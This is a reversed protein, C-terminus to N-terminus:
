GPPTGSVVFLFIKKGQLSRVNTKLWKKILMKGTYVPSGLVFYDYRWLDEEGINDAIEMPLNLSDALWQAYQRTANYKGKYIIIGKM